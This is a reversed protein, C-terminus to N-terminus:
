PGGAATRPAPEPLRGARLAERWRAVAAARQEPPAYHVYGLTRGFMRELALIAYLRVGPDPDELLDVLWHAAPRDGLRAVQAAAQARRVAFPSHLGERPATCAGCLGALLLAPAARRRQRLSM